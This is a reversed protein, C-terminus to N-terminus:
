GMRRGDDASEEYDTQAKELLPTIEELCRIPIMYTGSKFPCSPLAYTELVKRLNIIVLRARTFNDSRIWEKSLRLSQKDADVVIESLSGKRINGCASSTVDLIVTSAQLRTKTM